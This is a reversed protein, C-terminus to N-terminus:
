QLTYSTQFYTGPEIHVIDSTLSHVEVTFEENTDVSTSVIGGEGGIDVPLKHGIKTSM